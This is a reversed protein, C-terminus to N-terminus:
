DEEPILVKFRTELTHESSFFQFSAYDLVHERCSEIDQQSFFYPYYKSEPFHLVASIIWDVDPKNSFYDLFEKSQALCVPQLNKGDHTLTGLPSVEDMLFCVTFSSNENALGESILHEKYCPIHSYHNDFREKCNKIFNEYSNAVGIKTSSHVGSESLPMNGFRRESMVKNRQFKSGGGPYTDFGDIAFHEIILIQHDVKIYADPLEFSEIKGNKLFWILKQIEESEGFYNIRRSKFLGYKAFTSVVEDRSKTKDTKNNIGM